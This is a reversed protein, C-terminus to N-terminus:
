FDTFCCFLHLCVYTGELIDYEGFKHKLFLLSQISKLRGSTFTRMIVMFLFRSSLEAM